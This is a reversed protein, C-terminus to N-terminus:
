YTFAFNVDPFKVTDSAVALNGFRDLNNKGLQFLTIAYKVFTNAYMLIKYSPNYLPIYNARAGTAVCPIGDPFKIQKGTWESVIKRVGGMRKDKKCSVFLGSLLLM